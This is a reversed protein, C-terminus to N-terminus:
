GSTPEETVSPSGKTGDGPAPVGMHGLPCCISWQGRAQPSHQAQSAPSTVASGHHMRFHDEAGPRGLGWPSSDEGKEQNPTVHSSLLSSGVHKGRWVKVSHIAGQKGTVCQLVPDM